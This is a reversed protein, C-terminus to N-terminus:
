HFRQHAEAGHQECYNIEARIPEKGGMERRRQETAPRECGKVACQSGGIEFARYGVRLWNSM